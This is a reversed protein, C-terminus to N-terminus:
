IVQRIHVFHIATSQMNDQQSKIEWGLIGTKLCEYICIYKFSNVDNILFFAILNTPSITGCNVPTLIPLSDSVVQIEVQKWFM